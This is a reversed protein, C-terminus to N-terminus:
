FQLEKEGSRVGPAILIVPIHMYTKDGKRKEVQVNDSKTDMVNAPLRDEEHSYSTYRMNYSAM